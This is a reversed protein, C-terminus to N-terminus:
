KRRKDSRYYKEIKEWTEMSGYSKGHLIRHLISYNIKTKESIRVLAGRGSKNVEMNIKHLLQERMGTLNAYGSFLLLPFTHRGAYFIKISNLM